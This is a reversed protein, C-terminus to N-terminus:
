VYKEQLKTIYVCLSIAGLLCFFGQPQILSNKLVISFADTKRFFEKKHATRATKRGRFECETLNEVEAELLIPQATRGQCKM